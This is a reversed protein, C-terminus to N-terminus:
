TSITHFRTRIVISRKACDAPTLAQRTLMM